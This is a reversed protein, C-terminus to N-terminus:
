HSSESRSNGQKPVTEMQQRIADFFMEAMKGYGTENPHLGDFSLLTATQGAVGPYLDVLIAGESAAM